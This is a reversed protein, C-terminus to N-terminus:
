LQVSRFTKRLIPPLGAPLKAFAKIFSSANECKFHIKTPFRLVFCKSIDMNPSPATLDKDVSTLIFLVSKSSNFPSSIQGYFCILSIFFDFFFDVDKYVYFCVFRRIEVVFIIFIQYINLIISFYSLYFTMEHCFCM